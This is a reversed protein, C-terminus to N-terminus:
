KIEIILLVLLSVMVQGFNNIAKVLDAVANTILNNSDDM